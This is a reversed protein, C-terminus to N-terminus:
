RSPRRPRTSPTTSPAPTTCARSCSSSARTPSSSLALGPRRRGPEEAPRGADRGRGAHAAEVAQRLLDALGGRLRVRATGPLDPEHVARPDPGEDARTRDEARAAGRRVQALVVAQPEPLLQARGAAHDDVRGAQAPAAPERLVRARHGQPQRRQALLLRRGRHRAARRAPDEPFRQDLRLPAAGARVPRARRRRADPDRAAPAAPLAHDGRGLEPLGANVVVAATAIAVLIAAIVLGSVWATTIWQQKTPKKFM